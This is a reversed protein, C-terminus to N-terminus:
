LKSRYSFNFRSGHWSRSTKAIVSIFDAARGALLCGRQSIPDIAAQQELNRVGRWQIVRLGADACFAGLNAGVTTKGPGGKTSVVAAVKM